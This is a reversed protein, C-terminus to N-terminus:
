RGGREHRPEIRKWGSWCGVHHIGITNAILQDHFEVFSGLREGRREYAMQGAHWGFTQVGITVNFELQQLVIHTDIDDGIGMFVMKKVANFM